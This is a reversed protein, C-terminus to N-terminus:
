TLLDGCTLRYGNAFARADMPGKGAPQVRMVKFADGRGTAVAIGDKAIEIIEGPLAYQEMLHASQGDLLKITINKLNFFVGPWKGLARLKRSIQEAPWSWDLLGHEKKLMPAYTALSPDQPQERIDGAEMGSLTEVLLIGGSLALRTELTQTDDTKEITVSHRALIGGTDLGADMRMITIGTEAEGNLIAWQVPAAGRYKPLLSFHVNLSGYRPITLLSTPLIQGYAVVVYVDPQLSQVKEIFAAEAVRAPQYVPLGAQIAAQKVPSARLTQGRGAPRDPQTVVAIIDHRNERLSKLSPLAAEPSGFFLVRM